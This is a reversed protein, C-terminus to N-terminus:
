KKAHQYVEVEQILFSQAKYNLWYATVHTREKKYM